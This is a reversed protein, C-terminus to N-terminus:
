GTEGQRGFPSYELRESGDPAHLDHHKVAEFLLHPFIFVPDAGALPTHHAVPKIRKSANHHEASQNVGHMQDALGRRLENM